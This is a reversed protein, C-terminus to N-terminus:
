TPWEVEINENLMRHISQQPTDTLVSFADKDIEITPRRRRYLLDLMDSANKNLWKLSESAGNLAKFKPTTLTHTLFDQTVEEAIPIMFQGGYGRANVLKIFGNYTSLIRELVDHDYHDIDMPNGIELIKMMKEIFALEKKVLPLRADGNEASSYWQGLKEGRANLSERAKRFNVHSM